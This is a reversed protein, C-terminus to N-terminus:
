LKLWPPISRAVVHPDEGAMDVSSQWAAFEVIESCPNTEVLTFGPDGCASVPREPQQSALWLLHGANVAAM